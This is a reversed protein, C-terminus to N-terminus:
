MVGKDPLFPSATDYRRRTVVLFKDRWELRRFGLLHFVQLPFFRAITTDVYLIESHKRNRKVGPLLHIHDPIKLRRLLESVRLWVPAIKRGLFFGDEGQSQYLPMLILGSEVARISGYRNTALTEGRRVPDFNTFGPKMQFNDDSAVPERHRIELISPEGTSFALQQRLQDLEPVHRADLIGANVIAQLVLSEHNDISVDARHQGAEFGLTVVGENNLFELMTGELQEEIGLLIKVPLMQAFHRNRLTDGVTAFPQGGASTSHLDLAYVENEATQLIERFIELLEYQEFDESQICSELLTNRRINERRWHRNLDSDIFRVARESARVNGIILYVRGNLNDKLSELRLAVRQLALLGSPENGHISGIAVLTPGDAKKAYKFIVHNEM